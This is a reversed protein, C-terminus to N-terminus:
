RCDGLMVARSCDIMAPRPATLLTISVAVVVGKTAYIFFDPTKERRKEPDCRVEEVSMSLEMGGCFM